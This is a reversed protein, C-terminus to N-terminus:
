WIRVKRGQMVAKSAYLAMIAVTIGSLTLGITISFWYGAAGMPEPTLTDTFTFLSGLALGLGWLLIGYIVMPIFTIRYGRLAFSGVCNLADFFHYFSAYGILSLAVATVTAETTYLGVLFEKFNLLLACVILACFGAIKLGRTTAERAATPSDAGMCQAVLVSTAVGYSLPLMYFLSMMNAIIQHGSVITAGLRSIFITMFTFSTVEFFASLGIPIGLKLQEWLAIKCPRSMRPQRMKAYFGDYRWILWYCLLTLWGTLSSSIACGAGGFEPIPGWGYIFIYNFPVKLILMLLAVWMAIKPRSVAANMAMYARGAMAGPLGVANFILYLSAVSAVEPSAKTLMMWLPTCCMLAMGIVSMTAALYLTQHLEFGIREHKGAGYHHGAIPSLGQMVGVLAIFISITVAMGIAVGALDNAGLRGAMLTDITGGGVIALNSIWIPLSLKIIAWYSTEPPTQRSHFETTM